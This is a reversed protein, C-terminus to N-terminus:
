GHIRDPASRVESRPPSADGTRSVDAASGREWEPAGCRRRPTLAATEDGGEDPVAITSARPTVFDNPWCRTSLPTSKVTSVPLTAHMRPGDPEPFDVKRRQM